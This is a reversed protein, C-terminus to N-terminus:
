PATSSSRMLSTAPSTSAASRHPLLQRDRGVVALVAFAMQYAIQGPQAGACCALFCDEPGVDSEDTSCRARPRERCSLAPGAPNRATGEDTGAHSRLYMAGM